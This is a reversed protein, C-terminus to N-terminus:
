MDFVRSVRFIQSPTWLIRIKILSKTLNKSQSLLFEPGISIEIGWTAHYNLTKESRNSSLSEDRITGGIM